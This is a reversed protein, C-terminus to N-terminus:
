IKTIDHFKCIPTLDTMVCIDNRIKTKVILFYTTSLRQSFPM